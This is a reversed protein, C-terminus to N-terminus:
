YSKIYYLKVPVEEYLDPDEADGKRLYKRNYIVVTVKKYWTPVIKKVDPNDLDIYNVTVEIRCTDLKELIEVLEFGNYDDVDNFTKKNHEAGEPGLKAATTLKIKDKIKESLLIEDFALDSIENILADGMETVTVVAEHYLRTELDSNGKQNFTLALLTFIILALIM